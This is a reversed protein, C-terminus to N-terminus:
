LKDGPEPNTKTTTGKVQITVKHGNYRPSIEKAERRIGGGGEDRDGSVRIRVVEGELSFFVLFFITASRYNVFLRIYIMYLIKSDRYTPSNSIIM